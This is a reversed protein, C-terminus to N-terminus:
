IRALEREIERTTPERGDGQKALRRLAMRRALEWDVAAAAARESMGRARLTQYLKALGESM